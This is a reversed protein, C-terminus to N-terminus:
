TWPSWTENLKNIIANWVQTSYSCNFFLHDHSENDPCLSCCSISKIRFLVLRDETYLRNLIALWSIVSCKPVHAPFCVLKNWPVTPYHVRLADWLSSVTFHGCPTFSWRCRDVKELNSTLLLFIIGLRM